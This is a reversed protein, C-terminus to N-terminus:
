PPTLPMCRGNVCSPCQGNPEVCDKCGVVGGCSASQTCTDGCKPTGCHWQVGYINSRTQCTAGPIVCLEPVPGPVPFSDDMCPLLCTGEADMCYPNNPDPNVNNCIPCGNPDQDCTDGMLPDNPDNLSCPEDCMYGDPQCKDMLATIQSTGDCIQCDPDGQMCAYGATADCDEGCQSDGQCEYVGYAVKVCIDCDPDSTCMNISCDGGCGAGDLPPGWGNEINAVLGGALMTESWTKIASPTEVLPVVGGAISQPTTFMVEKIEVIPTLVPTCQDTEALVRLMYKVHGKTTKGNKALVQGVTCFREGNTPVVPSAGVTGDSKMKQFATEGMLIGEQDYVRLKAKYQCNDPNMLFVGTDHTITSSTDFIVFGGYNITGVQVWAAHGQPLGIGMLLVAM